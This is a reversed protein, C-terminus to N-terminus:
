HAPARRSGCEKGVRREESRTENAAAEFADPDLPQCGRELVTDISDYGERNMRVNQPFYGPPPLLGETVERIFQKKSVARLAYNTQKQHGLTDSTERAM